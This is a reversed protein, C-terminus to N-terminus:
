ERDFLRDAMAQARAEDGSIEDAFIFGTCDESHSGVKGCESCWGKPMSKKDM